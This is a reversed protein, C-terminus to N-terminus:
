ETRVGFRVTLYTGVFAGAALPVVYLINRSFTVVGYALLSYIAASLAASLVARRGGVALIYSAYLVDIVVYTVFVIAATVPSYDSM